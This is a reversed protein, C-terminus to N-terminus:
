SLFSRVTESVEQATKTKMLEVRLEKAGAFGTAYNQFHKYMMAFSKIGRFYHEFLEAHEVMLVLREAVPVQAPDVAPDFLWLNEFVGRGIMVGDVKYKVAKERADALSRVDGNGLILTDTGRAINVARAVSEWDAPVKSMQKATRAHISIAVPRASLLHGVWEEIINRDYGLRTKVSVPLEPAGSKVAKVIEVARVPELCLAGGAANKMVKKDPCGMNIDIGDFGLTALLQAAKHFHEPDSGFIQAVLPREVAANFQLYHEVLKAQSKPHVLGDVSVFETFMVDPKGTKAIIQRFAADTVDFMPALVFIPRKLQQWFSTM